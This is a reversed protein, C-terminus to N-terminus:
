LKVSGGGGSSSRKQNKKDGQTLGIKLKKFFFKLWKVPIHPTQHNGHWSRSQTQVDKRSHRQELVAELKSRGEVLEGGSRQLQVDPWMFVVALFLRYTCVCVCACVPKKFSLWRKSWQYHFVWAGSKSILLKRKWMLAWKWVVTAGKLMMAAVAEQSQRIRGRNQIADENGM